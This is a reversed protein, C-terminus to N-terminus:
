IVFVFSSNSSRLIYHIVVSQILEAPIQDTHPLRYAKLKETAIEAEFFNLEPLLPEATCVETETVDNIGHVNL